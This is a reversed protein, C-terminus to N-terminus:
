ASKKDFRIFYKEDFKFKPGVYLPNFILLDAIDCSFPICEQTYDECLNRTFRILVELEVNDPFIVEFVGTPEPTKQYESMANKSRSLLYIASSALRKRIQEYTYPNNLLGINFTVKM